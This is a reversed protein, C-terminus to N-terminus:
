KSGGSANTSLWATVALEIQAWRERILSIPISRMREDEVSCESPTRKLADLKGQAVQAQELMTEFLPALFNNVERTRDMGGSDEGRNRYQIFQREDLLLARVAVQTKHCIIAKASDLVYDGWYGLDRLRGEVKFLAPTLISDLSISDDTSISVPPGVSSAM